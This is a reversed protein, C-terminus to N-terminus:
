CQVQYGGLRCLAEPHVGALSTRVPRRRAPRGEGRDGPYAEGDEPAASWSLILRAPGFRRYAGIGRHSRHCWIGTLEAAHGFRYKLRTPVPSLPMSSVLSSLSHLAVSAGRSTHRARSQYSVTDPARQGGELLKPLPCLRAKTGHDGALTSSARAAARYRARHMRILEGARRTFAPAGDTRSHSYREGEARWSDTLRAASSTSIAAVDVSGSAHIGLPSFSRSGGGRFARRGLHFTCPRRSAAMLARYGAYTRSGRQLHQASGSLLFERTTWGM